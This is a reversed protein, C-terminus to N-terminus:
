EFLEGLPIPVNAIEDFFYYLALPLLVAVVALLWLRREGFLVAFIIIILASAVPLGIWNIAAWIAYLLVFSLGIRLLGTRLERHSSDSTKEASEKVSPKFAGEFAVIGGFVVLMWGTAKPWFAPSIARAPINDPRVVGLPILILLVIAGFALIAGGIWVDTLRSRVPLSGAIARVVVPKLPL